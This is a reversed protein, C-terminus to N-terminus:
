PREAHGASIAIAPDGRLTVIGGVRRSLQDIWDPRTELLAIVAPHAVLRTAGTERSALRLLAIAEFTVPDAALEFLSAHRRPRVLQLFGFGNVATREYPQGLNADLAEAQALRAAKGAVTPLDIGISGGVGHRRIARAAAAAGALALEPPPLQGDVDILTMAPTLSVRLAGGPFPVVGSRAEEILDLWGLDDLVPGDVAKAGLPHAARPEEESLRALARKWPEPGGLLERTVEIRLRAGETIGPAGGPLLYSQGGAEAISNRGTSKLRADLVTGAPVVEDRIVRAEVIRGQEVLISRTEGIGRESLWGHEPL